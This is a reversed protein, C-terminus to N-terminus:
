KEELKIKLGLSEALINIEQVQKDPITVYMFNKKMESYGREGPLLVKGDEGCAKVAAYFTGMKRTLEDETLFYKVDVLVFLHGNRSEEHINSLPRVEGTSASGTLVGAFLDVFASLGYGKYGAIPLLTGNLAENPDETINGNYDLAWTSPIKEGNKAALRIKGRAVITTAMDLIIPNQTKGGPCAFCLPNTGFIPIRGGTPAMAPAANTFIMAAMGARAAMDGFYGATGFNNSNRVGIAAIGFQQAKNIAMTVAKYAAIQGFGGHADLIAMAGFDSIIEIEDKPNFHGSKIKNVYLPLRGIGHTPVNRRNAYHFTDM